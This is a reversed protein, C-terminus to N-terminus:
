NGTTPQSAAEAALRRGERELQRVQIQKLPWLMLWTSRFAGRWTLRYNEGTEDLFYYGLEAQRALEQRTQARFFDAETGPAPLVALSAKQSVLHQHVRFLSAADRLHPIRKGVKAPVNYFVRVTPTNITDIETGDKFHTFFNVFAHPVRNSKPITVVVRGVLAMTKAEPNVFLSVATRSRGARNTLLHCVLSFGLAKLEAFTELFMPPLLVQAQEDSIEEYVTQKPTVIKARLFFPGLIHKYLILFGCVLFV